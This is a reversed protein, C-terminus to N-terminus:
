GRKDPLQRLYREALILAVYDDYPEPPTQLSVPWLRRWGSRHQLLYRRRALDSTRHEDVLVIQDVLEDVGAQSLLQRFQKSGTRDGMLVLDVGFEPICGMIRSVLKGAPVIEKVLIQGTETVVVLGCKDTGPDVALIALTM